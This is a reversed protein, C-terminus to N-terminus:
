FKMEYLELIKKQRKIIKELDVIKFKLDQLHIALKNNDDQLNNIKSKQIM